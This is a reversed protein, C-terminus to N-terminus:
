DKYDSPVDRMWVKNAASFKLIREKTLFLRCVTCIDCQVLFRKGKDVIKHLGAKYYIVNNVCLLSSIDMLCQGNGDTICLNIYNKISTKFLSIKKKTMDLWLLILM